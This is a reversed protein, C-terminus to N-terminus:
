VKEVLLSTVEPNVEFMCGRLDVRMPPLEYLLMRSDALAAIM